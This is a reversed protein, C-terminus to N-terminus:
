KQKKKELLLRCVLHRLSQLESTHEESRHSDGNAGPEIRDARRHAEQRQRQVHLEARRLWLLFLHAPVRRAERGRGRPDGGGTWIAAVGACGSGMETDYGADYRAVSPVARIGSVSGEPRTMIFLFFARRWWMPLRRHGWGPPQSRIRFVKRMRSATHREAKGCAGGAARMLISVSRVMPSTSEWRKPLKASCRPRM